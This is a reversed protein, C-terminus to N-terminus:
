GSLERSEVKASIPPQILQKYTVPTTVVAQELLPYFLMCSMKQLHSSRDNPHMPLVACVFEGLGKPSWCRSLSGPRIMARRFRHLMTWATQYSGLGLVRQLGLAIVGHKQYTIYGAAALWVKLPTRTKDFITGATVSAPHKCSQCVLRHRSTKVTIGVVDCKPCIFEQPWRLRHGIVKV